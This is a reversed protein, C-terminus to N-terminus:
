QSCSLFIKNINKTNTEEPAMDKQDSFQLSEPFSLDGKSIYLKCFDQHYKKHLLLNHSPKPCSNLPTKMIIKWNMNLHSLALNSCYMSKFILRYKM